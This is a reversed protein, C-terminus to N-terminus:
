GSSLWGAFKKAATDLESLNCAQTGNLNASPEHGPRPLSNRSQKRHQNYCNHKCATSTKATGPM